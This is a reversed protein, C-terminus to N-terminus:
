SQRNANSAKCTQLQQKLYHEIHKSNTSRSIMKLLKSRNEKYNLFSYCKVAFFNHRYIYM